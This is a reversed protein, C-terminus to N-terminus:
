TTRWSYASIYIYIIYYVCWLMISKTSTLFVVPLEASIGGCLSATRKSQKGRGHNWELRYCKNYTCHAGLLPSFICLTFFLQRIWIMDRVLAGWKWLHVFCTLVERWNKSIKSSRMAIPKRSDLLSSGLLWYDMSSLQATAGVPVGSRLEMGDQPAWLGSDQSSIVGHM